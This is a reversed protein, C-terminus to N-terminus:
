TGTFVMERFFNPVYYFPHRLDKWDRDRSKKVRLEAPDVLSKVHKVNDM